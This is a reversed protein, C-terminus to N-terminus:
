EQEPGQGQCTRVSRCPLFCLSSPLSSFFYLIYICVAVMASGGGVGLCEPLDIKEFARGLTWDKRLGAFDVFLSLLGIDFCSGSRGGASSSGGGELRPRKVGEVGADGVMLSPGSGGSGAVV